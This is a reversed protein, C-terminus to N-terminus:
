ELGTVSAEEDGWLGAIDDRGGACMVVARMTADGDSPFNGILTEHEIYIDWAAGYRFQNKWVSAFLDYGGTM